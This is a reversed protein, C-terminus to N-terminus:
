AGQHATVRAWEEPTNVNVFETESVEADALEDHTIAEPHIEEFLNLISLRGERIAREFAARCRVHYAACLPEWGARTRPVVADGHAAHIRQVLLEMLKSSIQPMDCALFLNWEADTSALGTCVAALPGRDRWLDALVPLGLNGYIGPPALLTVRHVVSQLVEAARLVMPQRALQMLGKDQGMRRSKGGALVFGNIHELPRM